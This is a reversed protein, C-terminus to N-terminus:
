DCLNIAGIVWMVVYDMCVTSAQVFPIIVPGLEVFFFQKKDSFWYTGLANQIILQIM